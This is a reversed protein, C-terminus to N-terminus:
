GDARDAGLERRVFGGYSKCRVYTEGLSRVSYFLGGQQVLAEQGLTPYALRDVTTLCVPQFGIRSETQQKNWVKFFEANEVSPVKIFLVDFVNRFFM